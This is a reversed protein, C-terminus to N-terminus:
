YYSIAQVHSPRSMEMFFVGAQYRCTYGTLKCEIDLISARTLSLGTNFDLHRVKACFAATCNIDSCIEHTKDRNRRQLTSEGVKMSAERADGEDKPALERRQVTRGM